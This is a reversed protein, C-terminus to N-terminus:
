SSSGGAADPETTSPETTSPAPKSPTPESPDPKALEPDTPEWEREDLKGAFEWRLGPVVRRGGIPVLRVDRAVNPEFRVATGAPIDLRKGWAAPRDFELEPNVAGFHYHSGVQVPRDGKNVVVVHTRPRGPNLPVPDEAPIIEGPRV